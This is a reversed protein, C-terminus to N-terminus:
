IWESTPQSQQAPIPILTAGPYYGANQQLQQGNRATYVLQGNVYFEVREFRQKKDVKFGVSCLTKGTIAM